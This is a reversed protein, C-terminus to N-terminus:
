KVSGNKAFKDPSWKLENRRLKRGAQTIAHVGTPAGVFAVMPGSPFVARIVLLTDVGSSRVSFGKCHGGQEHVLHELGGAMLYALRGGHKEYIETM